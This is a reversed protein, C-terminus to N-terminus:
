CASARRTSCSACALFASSSFARTLAFRSAALRRARKFFFFASAALFLFDEEDEELLLELLLEDEDEEELELVFEEELELLLGIEGGGLLYRVAIAIGPFGPKTKLGQVFLATSTRPTGLPVSMRSGFSPLGSWLNRVGYDAAIVLKM